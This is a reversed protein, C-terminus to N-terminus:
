VSTWRLPEFVKASILIMLHAQSFVSEQDARRLPLGLIQMDLLNGPSASAAIPCPTPQTPPPPWTGCKSFWPNILKVCSIRVSDQQWRASFLNVTPHFCPFGPKQSAAMLFTPHRHTRELLPWPLCVKSVTVIRNFAWSTPFPGGSIVTSRQASFLNWPKIRRNFGVAEWTM